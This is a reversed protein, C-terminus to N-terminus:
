FLKILRINRSSGSTELQMSYIGAPLIRGNIDTAGWVQTNSSGSFSTEYVLRGCLDFVRVSYESEDGIQRSISISESFPNPYVSISELYGPRSHHEEIGTNGTVQIDDVYWGERTGADDSGFIFRLQQPGKIEVPIDINVLHWGQSGSFVGTGHEFPGSTPQVIEFPYGSLPEVSLWNDFQGLQVLGGDIALGQYATSYIQADIWIWFSLNGELPLNFWPSTLSCFLHNDYDGAGTDGCKFSYSGASTHNRLPSVHWNNLWGTEMFSMAWPSTDSEVDYAMGVGLPLEFYLDEYYGGDAFINIRFPYTEDEPTGPSAYVLFPNQNWCPQGAPITGYDQVAESVVLRTDLSQLIAFVNNLSEDGANLMEIGLEIEETVEFAWNGNGSSGGQNDDDTSLGNLVLEGSEVFESVSFWEYQGHAEDGVALGCEGPHPDPDIAPVSFYDGTSPIDIEFLISDGNCSFTVDYWVGSPFDHYLVGLADGPVGNVVPRIVAIDHDPSVTANIGSDTNDLRFFVAVTHNATGSAEVICNELVISGPPSIASWNNSTSGHAKGDAAWWTGTQGQPIWDGIYDDEFDDYFIIDASALASLTFVALLLRM